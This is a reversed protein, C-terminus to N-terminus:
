IEFYNISTLDLISKLETKGNITIKWKPLVNKHLSKMNINEILYLEFYGSSDTQTTITQPILLTKDKYVCQTNLIASINENIKPNGQNDKLFGWEICKKPSDFYGPHFSYGMTLTTIEPTSTGDDSHFYLKLKVAAGISLLSSLVAETLESFLNSQTYGSSIEWASTGMNYWKDVGDVNIVMRIQDNGAANVTAVISDIQDTQVPSATLLTPNDQPYNQATYDTTVDSVIDQTNSSSTLITIDLTDSAPLEAIHSQVVVATNAQARTGDSAIWATGNWYLGNLIYLPTGSEAITFATFGVINGTYPNIQQPLLISDEVYITPYINSWDPTYDITHQVTSFILLNRISFDPNRNGTIFRGMRFTTIADRTLSVTQTSGSQVGDVFLRQDGNTLDYNLEIEYEQGAVVSLNGLALDQVTGDSDGFRIHMDGDSSKHYITLENKLDGEIEFETFIVQDPLGASNPKNDYHPTWLVRITGVQLHDANGAASFDVTEDDGHFVLKGNEIAAGVVQTPSLSGNGWNGSIAANFKAYFTASTPRTDKQRLEGGTIESKESDFVFGTANDFTENFSDSVPVLKLRAGGSVEIKNPDLIWSDPSNFGYDITYDSM